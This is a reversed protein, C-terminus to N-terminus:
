ARVCVGVAIILMSVMIRFATEAILIMRVLNMILGVVIILVIM